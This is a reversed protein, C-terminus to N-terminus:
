IRGVPQFDAAVSKTEVYIPELVGTLAGGDRVGERECAQAGAGAWVSSEVIFMFMFAGMFVVIGQKVKKPECHTMVAVARRM